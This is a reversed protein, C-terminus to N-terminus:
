VKETLWKIYESNARAEIKIVCPIEYPHIKEVEKKIKDYNKVVTKCILIHEGEEVIKGEWWYLSDTKHINGCAILRKKLLHRAIKQATKKNPNTIYILILNM